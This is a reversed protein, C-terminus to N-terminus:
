IVGNLKIRKSVNQEYWEPEPVDGVRIFEVDAYNEALTNFCNHMSAGITNIGYMDNTPKGRSNYRGEVPRFFDIGVMYLRKVQVHKCLYWSGYVGSNNFYPPNNFPIPCLVQRDLLAHTRHINQTLTHFPPRGEYLKEVESQCPTDIMVVVDPLFDRYIWNCGVILRDDARLAELDMGERSLGNGIIVGENM